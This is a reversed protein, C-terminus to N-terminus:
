KKNPLNELKRLFNELEADATILNQKALGIIRSVKADLEELALEGWELRPVEKFGELEAIRRFIKSEIGRVTRKVIDKLTLKLIYEQRQLTARNTAEGSGTAFAKALGMGTIEQEIWYNLHERLKEPHKAELFSIKNYYPFTFGYKYNMNKIKEFIKKIQTPTPEHDKDGVSAVPTPFGARWIANVLAREMEIKSQSTKYIPEILGIGYFGDGVTYLKFHAIREPPIFIQNPLLLVNSGKPPKFRVKLKAAVIPPLTQVYGIPNGNEDLAIKQSGTKAYDMKKPDIADLDVIRNGKKNYILECWADGYIVQFKFFTELLDDWFREGGRYGIGDLFKRFFDEVKPNKAVLKYDASMIIQVVKNIANFVVPNDRYMNELLQKDIRATSPTTKMALPVGAEGEIAELFFVKDLGLAESILKM